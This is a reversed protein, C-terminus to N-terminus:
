EKEFVLTNGNSDKLVLMKGDCSQISYRMTVAKDDTFGKYTKLGDTRFVSVDTYNAVVDTGNSISFTGEAIIEYDTEDDPYYAYQYMISKEGTRFTLIEYDAVTAMNWWNGSLLDIIDDKGGDEDETEKHFSWEHGGDIETLTLMRDEINVYFTEMDDEDEREESYDWYLILIKEDEDYRFKGTLEDWEFSGDGKFIIDAGMAGDWRGILESNEYPNSQGDDDGCSYTLVSLAILMFIQFEVRLTKM